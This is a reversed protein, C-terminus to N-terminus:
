QLEPQEPFRSNSKVGNLNYQNVHVFLPKPGDDHAGGQLRDWEKPNLWHGVTYLVLTMKVLNHANCGRSKGRGIIIDGFASVRVQHAQFPDSPHLLGGLIGILAHVILRTPLVAIWLDWLIKKM